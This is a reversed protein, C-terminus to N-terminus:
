CLFKTSQSLTHLSVSPQWSFTSLISQPSFFLSLQCKLCKGKMLTFPKCLKTDKLLFGSSVPVVSSVSSFPAALFGLFSLSVSVVSTWSEYCTRCMFKTYCFLWLTFVATSSNIRIETFTFKILSKQMGLITRMPLNGIFWVLCQLIWWATYLVDSIPVFWVM